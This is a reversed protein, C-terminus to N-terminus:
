LRLSWIELIIEKVFKLVDIGFSYNNDPTFYLYEGGIGSFMDEFIGGSLM